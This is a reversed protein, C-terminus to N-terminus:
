VQLFSGLSPLCLLITRTLSPTPSRPAPLSAQGAILRFSSQQNSCQEVTEFLEQLSRPALWQKAGTVTIPQSNGAADAKDQLMLAVTVLCAVMHHTLTYTTILMCSSQPNAVCPIPHRKTPWSHWVHMCAPLSRLCHKNCDFGLSAATEGIADTECPWVCRSTSSATLQFSSMSPLFTSPHPLAAACGWIRWTWEM